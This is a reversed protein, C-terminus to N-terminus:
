SPSYPLSSFIDHVKEGEKVQRKPASFEGPFLPWSAATSSFSSLQITTKISTLDKACYIFSFEKKINIGYILCPSRCFIFQRLDKKAPSLWL